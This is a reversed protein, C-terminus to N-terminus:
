NHCLKQSNQLDDAFTKKTVEADLGAQVTM